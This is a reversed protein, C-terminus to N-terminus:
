FTRPPVTTANWSLRKRAPFLNKSTFSIKSKRGGGATSPSITTGVAFLNGHVSALLRVIEFQVSNTDQFEDVLIYRFRGGLYERADANNKLLLRTENLLDDFDLSNNERLHKQYRTYVKVVEDIDREAAYEAAYEAPTLGLM